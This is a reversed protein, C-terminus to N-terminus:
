EAGECFFCCVDFVEVCDVEAGNLLLGSWSVARWLIGRPAMELEPLPLVGYLTYIHYLLCFSLANEWLGLQKQCLFSVTLTHSTLVLPLGDGFTQDAYSHHSSFHSVSSSLQSSDCNGDCRRDTLLWWCKKRKKKQSQRQGSALYDTTRWVYANSWMNAYRHCKDSTLKDWQLLGKNVAVCFSVLSSSM